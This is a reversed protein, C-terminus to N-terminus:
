STDRLAARCNIKNILATKLMLARSYFMKHIQSRHKHLITAVSEIFQKDSSVSM